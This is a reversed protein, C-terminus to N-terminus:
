RRARQASLYADLATLMARNYDQFYCADAVLTHAEAWLGPCNSEADQATLDGRWSTVLFTAAIGPRDPHWPGQYIMPGLEVEVGLEERAERRAADEFTEGPDLGGGPLMRDAPNKPWSYAYILGDRLLLVRASHREGPAVVKAAERIVDVARQTRDVLQGERAEYAGLLELVVEAPDASVAVMAHAVETVLASIRQRQPSRKMNDM